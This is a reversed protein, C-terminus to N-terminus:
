RKGESTKETKKTWIGKILQWPLRLLWLLVKSNFGARVISKVDDIDVYAKVPMSDEESNRILLLGDEVTLRAVRFETKMLKTVIRM